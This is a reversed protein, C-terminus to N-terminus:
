GQCYPQTRTWESMAARKAADRFPMWDRGIGRNGGGVVLGDMAVAKAMMKAACELNESGDKLESVTDAECQHYDASVPSIQMVGIYRGGGGAAQPNWSSEYRAVASMLGAWFARRDDLSAKEYGPCWTAIDAPVTAALVTDHSELATLTDRTWKPAEPRADWQMPPMTGSTSLSTKGKTTVCGALVAAAVVLSIATIHRTM